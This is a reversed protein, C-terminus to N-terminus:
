SFSDMGIGLALTLGVASWVSYRGGVWDWITFQRDAAIGFADMAKQNTSVGIFQQAVAKEGLADIIWRRARRANAMTEQTSFSKSCVVFLVEAPDLVAMLDHLAQGDIASVFHCRTDAIWFDRLARYSAAVGLDSGGIGVNVVHGIRTGSAGTLTGSHVADVVAAVRQLEAHVVSTMDEGDAVFQDAPDSRLAMHLAPRDETNNVHEGAFLRDRHGALDADNAFDLLAASANTDVRQRSYDLSLGCASASFTDRRGDEAVLDTLRVASLKRACDCLADGTAGSAPFGTSDNKTM